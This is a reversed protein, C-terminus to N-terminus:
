RYIVPNPTPHFDEPRLKWKSPFQSIFERMDGYTVNEGIYLPPQKLMERTKDLVKWPNRGEELERDIWLFLKYVSALPAEQGTRPGDSM